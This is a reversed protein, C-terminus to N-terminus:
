STFYAREVAAGVANVDALLQGLGPSQHDLIDGVQAHELRAVLWSARRSLESVEPRACRPTRDERAIDGLSERLSEACYLVSRPFDPALLLFEAVRRPELRHQYRKLHAEFASATKLVAMWRHNEFAEATELAEAEVPRYRVQLLRLVNDGRELKQGTRLFAWGQDRPLTAFAIGFFLQCADRVSACFAHLGDTALVEANDFCLAHYARNLSEWMESPIRDRLSRANERAQALSTVISSTNGRDFALWYPVSRGDAEGYRARFAGASGSIAILPEWQDELLGASELAAYYNVDLLRATNEAREVYRGIWYLAEAVRALM